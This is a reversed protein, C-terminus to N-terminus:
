SDTLLSLFRRDRKTTQPNWRRKRIADSVQFDEYADFWELIGQFSTKHLLILPSRDVKRGAAAADSDDMLTQLRTKVQHVRFRLFDAYCLAVFQILMRGM